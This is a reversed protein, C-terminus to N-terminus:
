ERTQIMDSLYSLEDLLQQMGESHSLISQRHSSKPVSNNILSTDYRKITVESASVVEPLSYHQYYGHSDGSSRISTVHSHRFRDELETECYSTTPTTSVSSSITTCSLTSSLTRPPHDTPLGACGTGNSLASNLVPGFKGEIATPSQYFIEDGIDEPASCWADDNTLRLYRQHADDDVTASTESFGTDITTASFHSDLVVVDSPLARPPTAGNQTPPYASSPTNPLTPLRKELRTDEQYQETRGELAELTIRRGTNPGYAPTGEPTVVEIVASLIGQEAGRTASTDIHVAEDCVMSNRNSRDRSRSRSRQRRHERFSALTIVEDSNSRLLLAGRPPKVAPAEIVTVPEPELNDAEKIDIQREPIWDIIEQYKIDRETHENPRSFQFPSRLAAQSKKPSKNKLLADLSPKRPLRFIRSSTEWFSETADSQMLPAASVTGSFVDDQTSSNGLVTPSTNLRITQQPRPVPRPNVFKAEPDLTRRESSTSSISADRTRRGSLVFPVHLENVLQGPLLPCRTTAPETSNHFEIENNM